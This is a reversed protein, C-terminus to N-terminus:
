SVRLTFLVLILKLISPLTAIKFVLKYTEILSYDNNEVLDEKINVEEKKFFIVLTTTILFIYGFFKM